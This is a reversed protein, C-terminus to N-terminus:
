HVYGELTQNLDILHDINESIKESINEIDSRGNTIFPEQSSNSYFLFCHPISFRFFILLVRIGRSM